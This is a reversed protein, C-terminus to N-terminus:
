VCDLQEIPRYLRIHVLTLLYGEASNRIAQLLGVEAVKNSFRTPSQLLDNMGSDLTVMKNRAKKSTVSGM